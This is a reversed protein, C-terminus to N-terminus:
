VQEYSMRAKILTYYYRETNCGKENLKFGPISNLDIPSIENTYIFPKIRLLLKQNVIFEDKLIRFIGDLVEIKNEQIKKPWLPGNFIYAIGRKLLPLTRIRVQALGVLDSNEIIALHRVIKENQALKAFNWTQYINADEFEKLSNKWFTKDTIEKIKIMKNFFIKLIFEIRTDTPDVEM